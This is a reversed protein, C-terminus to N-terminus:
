AAAQECQGVVDFSIAFSYAPAGIMERCFTAVIGQIANVAFGQTLYETEDDGLIERWQNLTRSSWDSGGLGKGILSDALALYQARDSYQTRQTMM